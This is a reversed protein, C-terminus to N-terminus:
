VSYVNSLNRYYGNEDDLGYGVLWEEDVEFGNYHIGDVPLILHPQSKRKFLTVVSITKAGKLDLDAILYQITKGSDAFDDILFVHKGKIDCEIDKTIEINGQKRGAYSKARVFDCEINITLHKVFETFVMFGGNLIGVMVFKDNDLYHADNVEQALENIRNEIQKHHLYLKM